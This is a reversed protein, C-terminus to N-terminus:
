GGIKALTEDIAKQLDPKSAKRLKKLVPAASKAAPGSEGLQSVAVRIQLDSPRKRADLQKITTAIEAASLGKIQNPAPKQEGGGCGLFLSLALCLSALRHM